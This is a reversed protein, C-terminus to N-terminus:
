SILRSRAHGTQIAPPRSSPFRRDPLVALIAQKAANARDIFLPGQEPWGLILALPAAPPWKQKFAEALARGFYHGSLKNDVAFLPADLAPTQVTIIPLKAENFLQAARKNVDPFISYWLVFDPEAAIITRANEISKAPDSKNDFYLMEVNPHATAAHKVGNLVTAGFVAEDDYNAFVIRYKKTAGQASLAAGYAVAASVGALHCLLTRRNIM